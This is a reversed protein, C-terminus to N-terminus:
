AAKNIPICLCFGALVAIFKFDTENIAVYSMRKEQDILPYIQINRCEFYDLINVWVNIIYGEAIFALFLYYFLGQWM